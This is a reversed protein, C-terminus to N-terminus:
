SESATAGSEQQGVTLIITEAPRVPYFYVEINLIGQQISAPPNNEADIKVTFVEEPAGSGFAGRRWLGMLFPIVSNFKVKNWLTEDNPEQVVWRLGNMLSSKVFNFLLRVNVYLWIPNTSLTRSSDVVIGQGPIFRVANVSANKVLDTHDADTIRQRVNLIGNLRTANGAPAKWIGRERETRAYMGLIHGTPPIDIHHGIPDAIQVWPFYLAGYVKDGRFAGSYSNRIDGAEIDPPTHGVFMRDGQQECHTLAATVVAPDHSEPCALLQIPELQYLDIAAAYAGAEAAADAFTGDSGGTLPTAAAVAPNVDGNAATIIIYKSGSFEDNVVDSVFNSADTDMGLAPWTEVVNGRYHVVLDFLTNDEANTAIEVSTSDGWTGQDEQGRYGAAVTIVGDFDHSSAGASATGTVRTVYATGGGNDFFGRVAYAGYAGRVFSGFNEVFQSWNTIRVVKGPIGRQSRIILGAVSTPAAQISPATRGDVEVVNLGINFGMSIVETQLM